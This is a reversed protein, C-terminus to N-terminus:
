KELSTLPREAIPALLSKLKQRDLDAKVRTAEALDDFITFLTPGSGSVLTPTDTGAISTFQERIDEIGSFAEGGVSDFANYAGPDQLLDAWTHSRQLREQWQKIRTGSTFATADLLAYLAETKNEPTSVSPILLVAWGQPAGPLPEVHDGRGTALATGNSQLFFPVDSGLAAGIETLEEISLTLSWLRDLAVLTAAANSSGGGLGAALPIMKNLTIRAGDKSGTEQRLLNAARLVLNDPGSLAPVSCELSVTEAPDVTLEDALDIAQIVTAIEHYGDSRKGLVELCLNVKAHALIRIM